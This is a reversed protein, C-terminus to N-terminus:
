APVQDSEYHGHAGQEFEEDIHEDSSAERYGARLSRPAAFRFTAEFPTRPIKRCARSAEDGRAGTAVQADHM